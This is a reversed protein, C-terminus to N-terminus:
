GHARPDTSPPVVGGRPDGVSSAGAVIDPAQVTTALGYKKAYPLTKEGRELAAVNAELVEKPFKGVIFGESVGDKDLFELHPIGDVGYADLEGGWKTNDINLMVFNVGNAHATEVAYVTPASEKCVECWDAYFELVTPKGSSLAADLSTSRKELQSLNAGAIADGSGVGSTTSVGFAFVGTAFAALAITKGRAREDDISPFDPTSNSNSSSSSSPDRAVDDTEDDGTTARRVARAFRADRAGRVSSWSGKMSRTTPAFRAVGTAPAAFM